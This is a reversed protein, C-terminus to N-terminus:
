SIEGNSQEVLIEKLKLKARSLRSMVTGEKIDIIRSIEKYSLDEFERLIIIEQFELPLKEMASKIELHSLTKLFLTEPSPSESGDENLIDELKEDKLEIFNRNKRLWSFCTNRVIQFFWPKIDDKQVDDFFRFARILSDQMVDEADVDNRTLWRALNYASPLHPILKQEFISNKNDKLIRLM